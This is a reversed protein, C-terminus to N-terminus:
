PRSETNLLLAYVFMADINLSSLAAQWRLITQGDRVADDARIRVHEQLHLDGLNRLEDRADRLQLAFGVVAAQQILETHPASIRLEPRQAIPHQRVISFGLRQGRAHQVVTPIVIPLIFIEVPIVPVVPDSISHGASSWEIFRLEPESLTLDIESRVGHDGHVGHLDEERM